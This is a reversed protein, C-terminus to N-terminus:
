GFQEPLWHKHADKESESAEKPVPNAFFYHLKDVLTKKTAKANELAWHEGFLASGQEYVVPRPVRKWYGEGTPRWMAAYDPSLDALLAESFCPEDRKVGISLANAVCYAFLAQKAKTPLARLAAFREADDEIDVWDTVLADRAAALAETAASTAHESDGDQSPGIHQGSIRVASGFFRYPELVDMALTYLLADMALKPNKVLAAKAIQQRHTGLDDILARSLVPNEPEAKEGQNDQAARSKAVRNSIYGREIKTKGDHGVSVFVVAQAKDEDSYVRYTDIEAEIEQLRDELWFSREEEEEEWDSKENLAELEQERATQENLLKEPVDVPKPTLAHYSSYRDPNGNVAIDVNQWGEKKAVRAAAKELKKLALDTLLDRDLLYQRESFLDRVVRGGATEYAELGVYRALRSDSGEGEETLLRRINQAYCSHPGLEKFVALQRKATDALTFAMLAEINIDGKRCAKRITPHVKALKLRKKVQIVDCGFRLAIAAEDNGEAQMRAFAEFEDVPHMAHRFYNEALSVAAANGPEKVNCPLPYDDSVQGTKVLHAVARWRVGGATVGYGEGEQEVTLNQLVGEALINAAMAEIEEKSPPTTRVNNKSIHTQNWPINQLNQM